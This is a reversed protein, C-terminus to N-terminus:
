TPGVVGGGPAPLRIKPRELLARDFPHIDILLHDDVDPIADDHDKRVLFNLDAGTPVM